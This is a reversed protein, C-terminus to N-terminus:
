DLPSEANNSGDKADDAERSRHRSLDIIRGDALVLRATLRDVHALALQYQESLMSLAWFPSLSAKCDVCSVIDGRSDLNLHLHACEGPRHKRDDHTLRVRKFVLVNSM